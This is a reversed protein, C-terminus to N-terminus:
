PLRELCNKHLRLNDVHHSGPMPGIVHQCLNRGYHLLGDIQSDDTGHPHQLQVRVNGLKLKAICIHVSNSMGRHWKSVSWMGPTAAMKQFSTLDDCCTFKCRREQSTLLNDDYNTKWHWSRKAWCANLIWLSTFVNWMYSEKSYRYIEIGQYLLALRCNDSPFSLAHANNPLRCTTLIAQICHMRGRSHHWWSRFRILKWIEECLGILIQQHSACRNILALDYADM